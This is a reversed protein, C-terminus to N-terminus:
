NLYGLDRLNNKAETDINIKEGQISKINEIMYEINEQAEDPEFEKMGYAEQNKFYTSLLTVVDDRVNYRHASNFLRHLTWFLRHHRANTHVTYGSDYSFIGDADYAPLNRQLYESIWHRDALQSVRASVTSYGFERPRRQDRIDVGSTSFSDSADICGAITEILDVHEIVETEPDVEFGDASLSDHIFVCPVFVLEPCLPTTHGVESYEGLLEGHDATVVVLTEDLLGREALVDVRKQLRSMSQQVSQQYESRIREWDTKRSALYSPATEDEAHPFHTTIDREMYIFPPELESITRKDDRRLIDFIPNSLPPDDDEQYFSTDFGPIEFITQVSDPISEVFSMVGHEQPYRGTALTAFSPASFTSQAVTKFVVGRNAIESPLSDFRLADSVFVLLNSVTPSNTTM